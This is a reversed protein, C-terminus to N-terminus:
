PGPLALLHDHQALFSLALGYSEEPIEVGLAHGANPWLHFRSNRIRRAVARGARPSILRDRGGHQVLTPAAIQRLRRWTSHSIAAYLQARRTEPQVSEELISALTQWATSGPTVRAAFEESFWVPMARAVRTELGADQSPRIISRTIALVGGPPYLDLRPWGGTTAALVLGATRDPHRIAVEQAIMAGLSAGSIHARHVGLEDLVAVVDDAAVSTRWRRPHRGNTTRHEVVVVSYGARLGREIGEAYLRGTTGMAALAVLVRGRDGGQPDHRKFPIRAWDRATADGV